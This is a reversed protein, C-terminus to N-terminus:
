GAESGTTNRTRTASTRQTTLHHRRATPRLSGRLAREM